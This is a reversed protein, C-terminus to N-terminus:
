PRATAFAYRSLLVDTAGAALAARASRGASSGSVADALLTRLDLAAAASRDDAFLTVARARLAYADVEENGLTIPPGFAAISVLLSAVAAPVLGSPDAGSHLLGRVRTSSLDAVSPHLRMVNVSPAWPRNRPDDLVARLAEGQDARPAVVLHARSFLRNLAESRDEYWEQAFIQGVKDSGVLFGIEAGPFIRGAAEAQDAYLGHSSLAISCADGSVTDLAIIRDEPILGGPVKGATQLALTFVVRDYGESLASEAFLLHAATPPNFSGPMLAISRPHHQPGMPTLTPTSRPDLAHMMARLSVLTELDFPDMRM